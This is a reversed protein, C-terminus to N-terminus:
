GHGAAHGSLAAPPRVKEPRKVDDKSLGMDMLGAM